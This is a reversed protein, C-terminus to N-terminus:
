HSHGAHPDDVAVNKLDEGSECPHCDAGVPEFEVTCHHIGLKRMEAHISFKIQELEMLTKEPSVQAHLTMVIFRGDLSWVHLDHADELEPIAELQTRVKSMEIGPPVKQLFIALAKILNRIAHYLIYLTISLSLVPDIWPADYFMMIISGILVAVWGLVDELLHLSVVKANLNESGRMQWVAAGNVAIGLVAMIAMGVPEVEEPNMLRQISLYLIVVSGTSLIIVNILAGLVSFRRYGYTYRSDVEKQSLKQFYWALGLSLSDGMDHLADSLVAMSNTLLGGVIELITFGFNLWFAVAIRRSDIEAGTHHDHGADHGHAHDHNHHHNHMHM